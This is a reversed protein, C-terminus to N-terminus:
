QPKTITIKFDKLVPLQIEQVNLVSGLIQLIDKISHLDYQNNLQYLESSWITISLENICCILLVINNINMWFFYKNFAM